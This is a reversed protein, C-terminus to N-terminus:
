IGLNNAILAQARVKQEAIFYLTWISFIPLRTGAYIPGTAYDPTLRLQLEEDMKRM